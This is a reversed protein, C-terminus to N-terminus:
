KTIIIIICKSHETRPLHAALPLSEHPIYAVTRHKNWILSTLERDSPPPLVQSVRLPISPQARSPASHSGSFGPSKEDSTGRGEQREGADFNGYASKMHLNCLPVTRLKKKKKLPLVLRPPPPSFLFSPHRLSLSLSKVTVVGRPPNKERKKKKEFNM